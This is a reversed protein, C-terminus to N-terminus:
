SAKRNRSIEDIATYAKQRTIKKLNGFDKIDIAPMSWAHDQTEYSPKSPKLDAAYLKAGTEYNSIGEEEMLKEIKVIDEEAYRSKLSERQADVRARITAARTQEDRKEFETKIEARMEDAEVDPFRKTPDIEKVLGVFAKRTKPNHALDQALKALQEKAEASLENAM